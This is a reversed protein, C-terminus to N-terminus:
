GGASVSVRVPPYHPLRPDVVVLFLISFPAINHKPRPRLGLLLKCCPPCLLPSPLFFPLFSSLSPFISAPPQAVLFFVDDDPSLCILIFFSVNSVVLHLSASLCLSLCLSLRVPFSDVYPYTYICAPPPRSSRPFLTVFLSWWPTDLLSYCFSLSFFM